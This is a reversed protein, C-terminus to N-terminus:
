RLQEPGTVTGNKHTIYLHVPEYDTPGRGNEVQVTPTDPELPVVPPWLGRVMDAANASGEYGQSTSSLLIDEGRSVTVVYKGRVDPHIDVRIM